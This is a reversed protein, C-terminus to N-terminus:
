LARRSWSSRQRARFWYHLSPFRVTKKVLILVLPRCIRLLSRMGRTVARWAGNKKKTSKLGYRVKKSRSDDYKKIPRGRGGGACSFAPPLAASQCGDWLDVGDPLPTAAVSLYRSRQVPRAAVQLAVTRQSRLSVQVVERVPALRVRVDAIQPAPKSLVTQLNSPLDKHLPANCRLAVVDTGGGKEGGSEARPRHAWSM